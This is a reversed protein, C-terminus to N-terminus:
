RIHLTDKDHLAKYYLNYAFQPARCARHLLEAPSIRRLARPLAWRLIELEDTGRTGQVVQIGNYSVLMQEDPAGIPTALLEGLAVTREM